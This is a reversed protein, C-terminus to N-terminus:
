SGFLVNCLNYKLQFDDELNLGEEVANVLAEITRFTIQPHQTAEAWDGRGRGSTIVLIFNFPFPKKFNEQYYSVIENEFFDQVENEKYHKNTQKNIISELFSLHIILFHPLNKLFLDRAKEFIKSEERYSSVRLYKSLANQYKPQLNSIREFIRNDFITIYTLVSEILKAPGELNSPEFEAVSDVNSGPFIDAFFAGHSRLRCVDSNIISNKGHQIPLIPHRNKEETSLNEVEYGNKYIISSYKTNGKNKLIVAGIPAIINQEENLKVIILRNEKNIVGLWDSLWKEKARIFQLNIDRTSKINEDTEVIRIIGQNRLYYETTFQRDEASGHLRFPLNKYNDVGIIHFRSINENASNFESNIQKYKEGKWLHFFKQVIGLGGAKEIERKYKSVEQKYINGKENTKTKALKKNFVKHFYTRKPRFGERRNEPESYNESAVYIYPYYHRKALQPDIEDISLFQNNMLMAACVKDQSSGGLIPKGKADVVRTQLKKTISEIIADKSHTEKEQKTIISGNDYLLNQPHHLWIGVTYLNYELKQLSKHHIDLKNLYKSEQISIFLKIGEKQISSLNAKYHKINRLENEIITYFAHLGIIGNPFSVPVLKIIRKHLENYDKGMRLFGYESYIENEPSNLVETLNQVPTSGLSELTDKKIIELNIRAYEGSIIVMGARDLLEINVSLKNIGESHTITGLFLSNNLFDKLIDQWPKIQSRFVTDRTVGSWFASKDRLYRYFHANPSNIPFPFGSSFSQGNLSIQLINNQIEESMFRIINQLSIKNHHVGYDAGNMQSHFPLTSHFANMLNQWVLGLDTNSNDDKSREKDFLRSRSEFWYKLAILSHAGVNHAFSDVIIAIIATKIRDRKSEQVIENEKVLVKMQHRYFDDYGLDILFPNNTIVPNWKGKNNLLFKYEIKRKGQQSKATNLDQVIEGYDELPNEPMQGYKKGKAELLIKEYERTVSLIFSRYYARLGINKVQDSRIKLKKKNPLLLYIVGALYGRCIIPLPLFEAFKVSIDGQLFSMYEKEADLFKRRDPNKEDSQDEFYTKLAISKLPGFDSDPDLSSFQDYIQHVSFINNDKSWTQSVFM